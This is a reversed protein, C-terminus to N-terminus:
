RQMEHLAKVPDDIHELAHYSFVFDFSGDEFELAKANGERLECIDAATADFEGCLDIGTVNASLRQALIAAEIGSGCGVVLLEKIPSTHFQLILEAVKETKTDILAAM